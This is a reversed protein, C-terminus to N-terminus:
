MEYDIASGIRVTDSTRSTCWSFKGDSDLHIRVFGWGYGSTDSWIFAYKFRNTGSTIDLLTYGTAAEVAVWQHGAGSVLEVVCWAAKAGAPVNPMTVAASWVGATNTSTDVVLTASRNADSTPHPTGLSPEGAVPEPILTNILAADFGVPDDPLTPANGPLGQATWYANLNAQRAFRVLAVLRSDAM